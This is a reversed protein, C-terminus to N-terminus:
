TKTERPLSIPRSPLVVRFRTGSSPRSEVEIRGGHAEVVERCTYLGLGLGQKKTTSFPRFLKARIFEPTMGVGTDAVSVFVSLEGEHGGEVTLRGESAGMAELANIVLNEFVRELRDVDAIVELDDPLKMVVEHYPSQGATSEVVRRVVPSLDVPKLARRYEGSLTEVPKSLRAVIGQLKAAAERLSAIADARFEEREWRREMNSVLMSLAAISNKLDHTLTASLRVFAQLQRDEAERRIHERLRETMLNFSEAIAYARDGEAVELRRNLDGEAVARAARAISDIRRRARVERVVVLAVIAAALLSALAVYLRGERRTAATAATENAAVAVSLDLDRVPAYAAIWRAGDADAYDRSGERGAAMESAVGNFYPMMQAVTQFKLADNPHYVIRGGRDLAIMQFPAR